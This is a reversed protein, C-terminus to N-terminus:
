VNVTGSRGTKRSTARSNKLMDLFDAVTTMRELDDVSITVDIYTAGVHEPRVLREPAGTNNQVMSLGKPLVGGSDMLLPKRWVGGRAMAWHVHDWHDSRVPEGYLYDAGNKVQAGNMPSFILEKINKGYTRKIWNFIDASPTVDIARGLAHYSTNGSSTISNARFSSFLQANPFQKQLVAWQNQWGSVNGMGSSDFATKFADYLSKLKTVAADLLKNAAAGAYQSVVGAGPVTPMLSKLYGLPDQFARYVASTTDTVWNFASAAQGTIWDIIGGGAYSHLVGGAAYQGSLLGKRALANLQAIGRAGGMAKTFEPRMIAEGGSLDLAGGTASYFRHVDRGPTYGPLVGGRAFPLPINDITPGGVKSGLFNFAKILGNNLVTEIVFRVPAQTVSKLTEWAVKVGAVAKEFATQVTAVGKNIADFVPSVVTTWVTKIVSGVLDMQPKVYKQYLATFTDGVVGLAKVILDFVAQIAAWTAKVVLVVFDLAPKVAVTYLWTFKDGLAALGTKVLEFTPLVALKWTALIIIEIAKFVFEVLAQLTRWSPGFTGSVWTSVASLVVQINAWVAKMTNWLAMAGDSISTWAKVLWPVVTNTVWGAVAGIATKVAEWAGNVVDRFTESNKYALVVAAVLAALGVVVWTVPSALLASNLVWQVAAWVKTATQVLNIQTIYAALGGAAQIALVTAHAQTVVLLAGMSIALAKSVSEHERMFGLVKTGSEWMLSLAAAILEVTTRLEGGVGQGSQFQGVLDKLLGIAKGFAEGLASGVQKAAPGFSDLAKTGDTILSPLKVFVGSLLQAGLRGLAAGINSLAGRFTTGTALAAGGIHKRIAEELIPFEVKGKSVMKTFEEGTLGFEEALWQVVPIGRESLQSLAENTVTGGTIMDGFIQGIDILPAGTIAAVDAMEKLTRTLDKGPKVGAAVANAAITAADGLGFATGKVSALASGMIATIEKATYGLGRLKGQADDIATLRSFGKALATGLVGAISSGVLAAGAGLTKGLTGAMNLGAAKAAPETQKPLEKVFQAADAGIVIVATGIVNAM